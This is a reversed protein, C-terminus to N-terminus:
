GRYSEISTGQAVTQGHQTRVAESMTRPEMREHVHLSVPPVKSSTHETKRAWSLAPNLHPDYAYTTKATERDRDATVLGFPPNNLREQDHYDYQAIPKTHSLKTKSM